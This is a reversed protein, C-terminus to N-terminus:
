PRNEYRFFYMNLTHKSLRNVLIVDLRFYLHGGGGDCVQEKMCSCIANLTEMNNTMIKLFVHVVIFYYNQLSTTHM